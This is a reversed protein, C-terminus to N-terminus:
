MWGTDKGYTIVTSNGTEQLTHVVDLVRFTGSVGRRVDRISIKRSHTLGPLPVSVVVGVGDPTQPPTHDILNEATAVSYVDGPEDDASWMLGSSGLWLAHRSLDHGFSRELTATLQRVARAVSVGSFVQYPLIDGPVNVSGVALGTRALLRRAVVDAPERYYSETVMTTALVKELGVAQVTIADADAANVGPQGISEVTGEWQQWFGAEGRYGWRVKVAQNIALAARAEGEPDPIVVTVRGVVARRRSVIEIFPSRFIELPGINCRINLGEIM